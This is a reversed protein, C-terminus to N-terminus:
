IQELLADKRKEYDVDSILGRDHLRKLTALKEDLETGDTSQFGGSSASSHAQESPTWTPHQAPAPPPEAQFSSMQSPVILSPVETGFPQKAVAVPYYTNRVRKSFTFYLFWIVGPVMAPFFALAVAGGDVDGFLAVTLMADISLLGAPALLLFAKVNRVSAPVFEKKLRLVLFVALALFILTLAWTLSKYTEWAEFGVLVPSDREAKDLEVATRGLTVLPGITLSAYIFFALVGHVGYPTQGQPGPTEAAKNKRFWVVAGVVLAITLLLPLLSILTDV